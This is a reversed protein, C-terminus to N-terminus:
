KTVKNLYGGWVTDLLDNEDFYSQLFSVTHDRRKLAEKLGPATCIMHPMRMQKEFIECVSTDSPYETYQGYTYSERPLKDKVFFPRKDYQIMRGLAMAGMDDCMDADAVIMAYLTKPRIGQLRKEFGIEKIANKVIDRKKASDFGIDDLIKDVNLLGDPYEIYMQNIEGADHLMAIVKVTELEDDNMSYYKGFRESLECVRDIHAVRLKEEKKAIRDSLRARSLAKQIEIRVAYTVSIFKGIHEKM